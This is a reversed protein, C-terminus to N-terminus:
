KNLLSNNDDWKCYILSFKIPILLYIIKYQKDDWNCYILSFKIPILQYIIEYQKM